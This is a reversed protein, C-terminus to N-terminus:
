EVANRVEKKVEEEKKIKEKKIEVKKPEEIKEEENKIEEKMENNKIDDKGINENKNIDNKEAEEKKMEEKIIEEKKIEKKNPEIKKPEEKKISDEKKIHNEVDWNNNNIDGIKKEFNEIINKAKSLLNKILEELSILSDKFYNQISEDFLKKIQTSSEIIYKNYDNINNIIHYDCKKGLCENILNQYEDYFNMLENSNKNVIIKEACENIKVLFNKNNTKSLIKHQNDLIIKEKEEFKNKKLKILKTFINKVESKYDILKSIYEDFTENIENLIQLLTDSNQNYNLIFQFLEITKYLNSSSSKLEEINILKKKIIDNIPKIKSIHSIHETSFACQSCLFISCEGCFLNAPIQSHTQCFINKEESM